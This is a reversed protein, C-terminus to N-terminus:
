KVLMMQYCLSLGCVTNPMFLLSEKCVKKSWKDTSYSLVQLQAVKYLTKKLERNQLNMLM